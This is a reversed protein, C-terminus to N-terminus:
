SSSSSALRLRGCENVQSGYNSRIGPIGVDIGLNLLYFSCPNSHYEGDETVYGQGTVASEDVAAATQRALVAMSKPSPDTSFQGSSLM